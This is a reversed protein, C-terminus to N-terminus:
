GLSSSVALGNSRQRKGLVGVKGYRRAFGFGACNLVTVSGTLKSGNWCEADERPVFGEYGSVMPELFKDLVVADMSHM